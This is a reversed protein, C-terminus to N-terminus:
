TSNQETKVQLAKQCDLLAKAVHKRVVTESLGVMRSIQAYSLGDFRHM